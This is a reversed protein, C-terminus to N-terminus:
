GAWGAARKPPTWAARLSFPSQLGPVPPLFYFFSFNPSAGTNRASTSSTTCTAAPPLTRLMNRRGSKPTPSSCCTATTSWWTSAKRSVGRPSYQEAREKWTNCRCVFPVRHAHSADASSGIGPNTSTFRSGHHFRSTIARWCSCCCGLCSCVEM